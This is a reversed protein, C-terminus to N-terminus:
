DYQFVWRGGPASAVVVETGSPPISKGVNWAFINPHSASAFTPTAGEVDNGAISDIQIAYCAKAVTPYTSVTVTRGVLFEGGGSAEFDIAEVSSEDESARSRLERLFDNPEIM